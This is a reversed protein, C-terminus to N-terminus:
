GRTDVPASGLESLALGVPELVLDTCVTADLYLYYILLQVAHLVHWAAFLYFSNARCLSM